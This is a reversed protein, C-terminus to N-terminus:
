RKLKITVKRKLLQSIGIGETGLNNCEKTGKKIKFIQALWIM